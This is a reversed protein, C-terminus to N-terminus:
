QSDGSLQLSASVVQGERKMGLKLGCKELVKLMPRNEPLVEAVLERLGARRAISILHRMLISGLGKGQCRDLVMFALEAKSPACVVYRAGGVISHGEEEAMVAVLAVHDLFDVHMFSQIEREGFHRRVSFFRRHLSEVSSHEVADLMETEDEPKLSRIEVSQGTRLLESASYNAVDQRLMKTPECHLHRTFYGDLSQPV